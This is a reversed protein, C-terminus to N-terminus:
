LNETLIETHDREPLNEAAEKEEIYKELATKEVVKGEQLDSNM